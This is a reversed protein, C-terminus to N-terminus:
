QKPSQKLMKGTAEAILTGDEYKAIAKAYLVKKTNRIIEARLLLKKDLRAPKRYRVELYGTPGDVCIVRNLLQALAEDLLASILGGHLYGRFGKQWRQPVFEGIIRKDDVKFNAKLGHPNDKGCGFCTSIHKLEKM